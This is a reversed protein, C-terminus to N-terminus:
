LYFTSKSHHHHLYFPPPHQFSDGSYEDSSDSLYWDKPENIGSWFGDTNKSYNDSLEEWYSPDDSVVQGEQSPKGFEFASNDQSDMFTHYSM